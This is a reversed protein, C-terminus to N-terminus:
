IRKSLTLSIWSKDREQNFNKAVLEWRDGLIEILEGETWKKRFRVPSKDYDAKEEYGEKSENHVTTALFFCGNPELMNYIKNFVEIADSKPFLHIFAKAFIGSYQENNFDHDLFDAKIFQTNPAIQRAVRIIGASIDIATCSFNNDEFMKLALGSGPGLELVRVNTFEKKLYGIFPAILAVDSDIYEDIRNAYEEAAIDYAAENTVLYDKM